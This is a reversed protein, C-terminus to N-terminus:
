ECSGDGARIRDDCRKTLMLGDFGGSSLTPADPNLRYLIEAMAGRTMLQEFRHISRPIASRAELARVYVEFWPHDYDTEPCHGGNCIDAPVLHFANAIIKAAEVFSIQQAPRFSGDPYGTILGVSRAHCLYREYWAGGPVDSFTHETCQNIDKQQHFALTIIKTFEARNITLDPKFTGDEYGGVMGRRHIYRIATAHPHSDPIDSFSGVPTTAIPVVFPESCDETAHYDSPCAFVELAGRGTGGEKFIEQRFGRMSDTSTNRVDHTWSIYSYGNGNVYLDYRVVASAPADSLTVTVTEYDPSFVASTVRLNDAFVPVPFLLAGASLLLCIRKINM